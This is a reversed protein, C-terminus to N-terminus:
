KYTIKNIQLGWGAISLANQAEVLDKMEQTYTFTYPNPTSDTVDFEPFLDTWWATMVRM